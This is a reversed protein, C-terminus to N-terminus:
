QESSDSSSKSLLVPVLLDAMSLIFSNQAGPGYVALPSIDRERVIKAVLAIMEGESIQDPSPDVVRCLHELKTYLQQLSERDYHQELSEPFPDWQTDPKDPDMMALSLQCIVELNDFQVRDDPLRMGEREFIERAKLRAQRIEPERLVRMLVPIAKFGGGSQRKYLHEPFLLRGDQELVELDGWDKGLLRDAVHDPVDSPLKLPKDTEAM